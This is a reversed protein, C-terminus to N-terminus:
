QKAKNGKNARSSTPSITSAPQNLNQAPSGGYQMSSNSIQVGRKETTNSLVGNYVPKPSTFPDPHVRAQQNQQGIGRDSEMPYQQQNPKMKVPTKNTPSKNGFIIARMEVQRQKFDNVLKDEGKYQIQSM